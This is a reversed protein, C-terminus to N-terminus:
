KIEGRYTPVGKRVLYAPLELVFEPPCNGSKNPLFKASECEAVVYYDADYIRQHVDATSAMRAHFGSALIANVAIEMQRALRKGYFDAEVVILVRKTKM